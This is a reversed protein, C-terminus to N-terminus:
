NAMTRASIDLPFGTSLRDTLRDSKLTLCKTVFSKRWPGSTIRSVLSGHSPTVRLSKHIRCFNGSLLGVARGRQANIRGSLSFRFKAEELPSCVGFVTGVGDMSKINNFSLACFAPLMLIQVSGM